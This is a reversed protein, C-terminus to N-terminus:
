NKWFKLKRKLAKKRHFKEQFQCTFFWMKEFVEDAPKQILKAYEDAMIVVMEKKPTLRNFNKIRETTNLKKFVMRNLDVLFFKYAEAKIQILTNGPSHDLFIVNQEHLQWTFRTFARLISEHYPYDPNTVLERYTLDYDIHESVYYSKGFSFRGEEEFYAIPAPTAIGRNLLEVAYIYSREAKSKRFFKYALRNIANPIKFSKINLHLNGVKFTKIKNRGGDFLVEGETKFNEILNIIQAEADSFNANVVKKM